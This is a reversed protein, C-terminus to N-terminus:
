VTVHACLSTGCMPVCLARMVELLAGPEDLEDCASFTKRGYAEMLTWPSHSYCKGSGFGCVLATRM